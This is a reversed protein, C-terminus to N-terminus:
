AAPLDLAPLDTTPHAIRCTKNRRHAYNLEHRTADNLTGDPKTVAVVEDALEIWERWLVSREIATSGEDRPHTLVQRGANQETCVVAAIRDPHAYSGCIVVWPGHPPIPHELHPVVRRLQPHAAPRPTPAPSTTPM